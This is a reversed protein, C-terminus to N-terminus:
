PSLLVYSTRNLLEEDGYIQFDPHLAERPTPLIPWRGFSEQLISFGAERFMAHMRVAPIRNTYFNSSVFFESEWINESFRLNNLAHELHDQFDINHSARGDPKLVRKLESMTEAFEHKRVHELVSHSWVLDVSAAPLERLSALGGTLYVANCIKLIDDFTRATSLDPARGGQKIVTEALSKYVDVDRRAFNGVDVLYIREVGFGAAHIASAISDGPGLELITAKSPLGNPFARDVHLKFIRSSYGAEDMKGHRLLGLNQWIGYPIPLRALMLKALIKFAWTM